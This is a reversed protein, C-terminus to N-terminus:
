RGAAPVLVEMLRDLGASTHKTPQEWRLERDRRGPKRCIRLPTTGVDAPVVKVVLGLDGYTDTQKNMPDTVKTVNSLSDYSFAITYTGGTRVPQISGARRHDHLDKRVLRDTGDTFTADNEERM